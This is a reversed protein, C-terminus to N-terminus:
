SRVETIEFDNSTFDLTVYWVFFPVRYLTRVVYEGPGLDCERLKFNTWHDLSFSYEPNEPDYPVGARNTFPGDSHDNLKIPGCALPGLATRRYIYITRYDTFDRQALWDPRVRPTGDKGYTLVGSDINIKPPADQRGNTVFYSYPVLRSVAYPVLYAWFVSVFILMGLAFRRM